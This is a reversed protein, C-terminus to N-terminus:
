DPPQPAKPVTFYFRSGEGLRSEAWVRGGHAEVLQKVIALGLGTGGDGRSPDAKYFRQFIHALDQEAIGEGSDAVEVRVANDVNQASVTVGGGKPTFKVANELLNVMIQCVRNQDVDVVYESPPVAANLGVTKGWALPAVRSLSEDLLLALDQPTTTLAVQGSELRALELLDNGLNSMRDTERHIRGLFDRTLSRNQLDSEELTELLAKMAALPNRMEHSVDSVFEKHSEEMQRIRTLDHLTLLVGGSGDGGLPTAIASLVRQPRFLRLDEQQQTGTEWCASVLRHLDPYLWGWQATVGDGESAWNSRPASPLEVGNGGPPGTNLLDKASRNLLTPRLDPGIVVVGDAMTDLVASLKTGEDALNQIVEKLTGAMRNFSEALEQTEDYAPSRVRHDLDGGALRRAGATVERVSHSTRRAVLFGLGIALVAAVLGSLSVTLIVRNLNAQLQATPVAVRVVGLVQGQDIVPVATYWLETGVTASRRKSTGVGASLADAIEPRAGRSEMAAPLEWNDALVEGNLGITTVRGDVLQGARAGSSRLGELDVPEKLYRSFSEALLGTEQILREELDDVYSDHIFNVLYVSVAGLSVIILATYALAVRWQLSRPLRM